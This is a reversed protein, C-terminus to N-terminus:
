NTCKQSTIKRNNLFYVRTLNEKSVKVTLKCDNNQFYKEFNPNEENTKSFNLIIEIKTSPKQGNQCFLENLTSARVQNV